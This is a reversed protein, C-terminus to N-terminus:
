LELIYTHISTIRMRVEETDTLPVPKIKPESKERPSENITVPEVVPETNIIVVTQNQDVSSIPILPQEDIV